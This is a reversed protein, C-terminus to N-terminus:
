PPTPRVHVVCVTVSCRRSATTVAARGAAVPDGPAARRRRRPARPPARARPPRRGAARAATPAARARRRARAARGAAGGAERRRRQVQGPAVALVEGAPARSPSPPVGSVGNSSRCRSARTARSAATAAPTARRVAQQVEVDAGVVQQQPGVARRHEHVPRVGGDAGGDDVDDAESGTPRGAVAPRRGPLHQRAGATPRAASGSATVHRTAANAPSICCRRRWGGGGPIGVTRGNWAACPSTASRQSAPPGAPVSATARGRGAALTQAWRTGRSRHRVGGSRCRSSM